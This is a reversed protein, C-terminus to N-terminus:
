QGGMVQGFLVRIFKIVAPGLTVIFMAPFLCFVLPFVLKVGIKAAREEARQRRKTRSTEAHTRLAQSVSTGFRDTQILMSVLARVDDVGTRSAFNRFAELRPKGARTETIIMQFEEALAPYALALEESVKMIAQDMASGAELCVIMLDLADPLGNQIVKQRKTVLHGLYFSPVLYGVVAAGLVLLWGKSFGVYFLALGGLLIPLAIQAISYIAVASMETYGARMMRRRLATLDKPSRPVIASLRKAAGSEQPTLSPGEVLVGSSTASVSAQQLRRREPATQTLVYSAVTGVLLAVTGFVAVIVLLLNASM